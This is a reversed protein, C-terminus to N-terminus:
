AMFGTLRSRRRQHQAVFRAIEVTEMLIDISRHRKRKLDHEKKGLRLLIVGASLKKKDLIRGSRLCHSSRKPRVLAVGEDDRCAMARGCPLAPGVLNRYAMTDAGYSCAKSPRHADNEMIRFSEKGMYLFTLSNAM